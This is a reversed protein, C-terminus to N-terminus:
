SDQRLITVPTGEGRSVTSALSTFVGDSDQVYPSIGSLLEAANHVLESDPEGGLQLKLHLEGLGTLTASYSSPNNITPRQINHKNLILHETTTANCASQV